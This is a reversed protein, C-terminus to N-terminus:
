GDPLEVEISWPKLFQTPDGSAVYLGEVEVASGADASGLAEDVEAPSTVEDGDVATILDGPVLGAAAAPTGRRANIM